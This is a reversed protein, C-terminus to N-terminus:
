LISDAAEIELQFLQGERRAAAFLADPYRLPSDVPGRILAEYGLVEGDLLSAIPQFVPSLEHGLILRDLPAHAPSAFESSM